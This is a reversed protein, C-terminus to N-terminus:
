QADSEGGGSRRSEIRLSCEVLDFTLFAFLREIEHSIETLDRQGTHVTVAISRRSDGAFRRPWNCRSRAVPAAVETPPPV